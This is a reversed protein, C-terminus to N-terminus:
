AQSEHHIGENTNKGYLLHSIAEEFSPALMWAASFGFFSGTVARTVPTCGHLGATDLLVDLLMPSAAILWLLAGAFGRVRSRIPGLLLLGSLFGWYIAFCRQCVAFKFGALHFSSAEHQHCIPSFFRYLVPTVVLRPQELSAVVPPLMLLLCWLLAASSLIIYPVRHKMQFNIKSFTHSFLRLLL